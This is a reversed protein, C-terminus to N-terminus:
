GQVDVMEIMEAAEGYKKAAEISVLQPGTSHRPKLTTFWFPPNGEMIM